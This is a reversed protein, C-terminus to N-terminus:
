FFILCCYFIHINSPPPFYMLCRYFNHRSHTTITRFSIFGFIIWLDNKLIRYIWYELCLQLNNNISPYYCCQHPHFLFNIHWVLYLFFYFKFTILYQVNKYKPSLHVHFTQYIEKCWFHAKNAQIYLKYKLFM